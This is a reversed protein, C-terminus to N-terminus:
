ISDIMTVSGKVERRWKGRLTLTIYHDVTYARSNVAQTGKGKQKSYKRDQALEKVENPNLKRMQLSSIYSYYYVMDHITDLNM